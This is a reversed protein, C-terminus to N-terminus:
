SLRAPAAIWPMLARGTMFRERSIGTLERLMTHVNGTVSWAGPTVRAVAVGDELAVGGQIPNNFAGTAKNSSHLGLLDTILVTRGRTLAARDVDGAKVELHGFGVRMPAEIRSESMIPIRFGNGTPATGHLQASRRDSLLTRLIGADILTKAVGAVGEDDTVNGRLSGPAATDDVLTWASHAIRDGPASTSTGAIVRDLAVRDLLLSRVLAEVLRPHLVVAVERQEGLFAACTVERAPLSSLLAGGLNTIALDDPRQTSSWADWDNGDLMVFAAVETSLSVAPEGKATLVARVVRSSSVEAEIVVNHRVARAGDRLGVAMRRVEDPRDVLMSAAEDAYHTTDCAATTVAFHTLVDPQAAGLARKLVDIADRASPSTTAATAIRGNKLARLAISCSACELSPIVADNEVTYSTRDTCTVLVETDDAADRLGDRIALALDTVAHHTTFNMM